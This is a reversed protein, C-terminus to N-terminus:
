RGERVSSSDVPESRIHEGSLLTPTGSDRRLFELCEHVTRATALVPLLEDAYRQISDRLPNSGYESLLEAMRTLLQTRTIGNIEFPVTEVDGKLHKLTHALFAPGQCRHWAVKVPRSNRVLYGIERRVNAFVRHLERGRESERLADRLTLLRAREDDALAIAPPASERAAAAVTSASFLVEGELSEADAIASPGTGSGDTAGCSGHSTGGAVPICIGMKDLVPLIHCAYTMASTTGVGYVLGIVRRAEDVVVSGSDGLEAFAAHGKCNLHTPPDSQTDYEIEIINHQYTTGIHSVGNVARVIGATKGTTRGVKFVRPTAPTPALGPLRVINPDAVVSRVDSLSNMGGVELDVISSAYRTTDQTCTSGFCRSDIVILALACDLYFSLTVTSGPITDPVTGSVEEHLPAGQIPGLSQGTVDPQYVYDNEEAGNAYLVHKNSLLYVNERSSDGRKRVICGLTGVEMSTPVAASHRSAIQIGGQITDYVSSNDCLAPEVEPVVRVDTRYGEFRPPIRLDAPIEGEPKKNRVFIILAVNDTFKGGTEKYGFGVGEVGEITMFRERARGYAEMFAQQDSGIDDNDKALETM